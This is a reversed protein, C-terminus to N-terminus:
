LFGRFQGMICGGTRYNAIPWFTSRRQDRFAMSPSAVPVASYPRIASAIIRSISRPRRFGPAIRGLLRSSATDSWTLRLTLRCQDFSILGGACGSPCSSGPNLRSANGHRVAGISFTTKPPSSRTASGTIVCSNGYMRSPASSQHAPHCGSCTSTRPYSSTTALTYRVSNGLSM